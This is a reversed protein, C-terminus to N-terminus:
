VQQRYHDLLNVLEQPSIPKVLYLDSGAEESRREYEDFDFATMAIIPVQIGQQRLMSSFELGDMDGNELHIDTIILDFSGMDCESLAAEATFYTFLEDGSMQVVRELLAINAANDEVYLIRM